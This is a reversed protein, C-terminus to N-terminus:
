LLKPYNRMTAFFSKKKLFIHGKKIEGFAKSSFTRKFDNLPCIQDTLLRIRFIHIKELRKNKRYWSNAFIEINISRNLGKQNFSLKIPYLQAFKTFHLSDFAFFGFVFVFKQNEFIEM